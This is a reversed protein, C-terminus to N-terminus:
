KIIKVYTLLIIQVFILFFINFSFVSYDGIYLM